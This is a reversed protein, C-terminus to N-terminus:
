GSGISFPATFRLFVGNKVVLAKVRDANGEPTAWPAGAASLENYYNDMEGSGSVTLLGDEDLTWTVADGCVGSDTVQAALAFAPLLGVLMLAATLVAFIKKKMM